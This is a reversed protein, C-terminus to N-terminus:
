ATKVRICVEFFFFDAGCQMKNKESQGTRMDNILISTKRTSQWKLTNGCPHPLLYYMPTIRVNGQGGTFNSNGNLTCLDCFKTRHFNQLFLRDWM